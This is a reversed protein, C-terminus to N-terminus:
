IINIKRTYINFTNRTSSRVASYEKIMTQNALPALYMGISCCYDHAYTWTQNKCCFYMFHKVCTQIQPFCVLKTFRYASFYKVGSAITLFTGETAANILFNYVTQFPYIRLLKSKNTQTLIDLRTQQFCM